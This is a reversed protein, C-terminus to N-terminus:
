KVVLAGAIDYKYFTGIICGVSLGMMIAIGIFTKAGWRYFLYLILPAFLFLQFDIALYWTHPLC